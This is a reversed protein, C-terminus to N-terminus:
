RMKIVSKTFIHLSKKDYCVERTLRLHFPRTDIFPEGLTVHSNQKNVNINICFLSLLWPHTEMIKFYGSSQSNSSFRDEMNFTTRLVLLRIVYSFRTRCFHLCDTLVMYLLRYRPGLHGKCVLFCSLMKALWPNRERGGREECPHLSLPCHAFGKVLSSSMVITPTPRFHVLCYIVAGVFSHGTVARIMCWYFLAM